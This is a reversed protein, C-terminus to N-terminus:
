LSRDILGFIVTLVAYLVLTPVVVAVVFTIVRKLKNSLKYKSELDKQIRSAGIVGAFYVMLLSILAPLGVITKFFLNPAKIAVTILVSTLTIWEIWKFWANVYGNELWTQVWLVGRDYPDQERHGM